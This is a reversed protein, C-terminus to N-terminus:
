NHSGSCTPYETTCSFPPPCHSTPNSGAGQIWSREGSAAATSPKGCIRGSIETYARAGDRGRGAGGDSQCLTQSQGERCTAARATRHRHGHLGGLLQLLALATHHNQGVRDPVVHSFRRGGRRDGRQCRRTDRQVDGALQCCPPPPEWRASLEAGGGPGPRGGCTM